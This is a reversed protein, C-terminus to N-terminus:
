RWWSCLESLEVEGAFPEGSEDTPAARLEAAAAPPEFKVEVVDFVDDLEAAAAGTGAPRGSNIRGGRTRWNFRSEAAAEVGSSAVVSSTSVIGSSSSPSSSLLTAGRAGVPMWSPSLKKRRRKHTQAHSQEVKITLVGEDRTTTRKKKNM